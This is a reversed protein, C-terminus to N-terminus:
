GVMGGVCTRDTGHSYAGGGSTTFGSRYNHGLRQWDWGAPAGADLRRISRAVAAPPPPPKGGVPAAPQHPEPVRYLRSVAAEWSGEATLGGAAAAEARAAQRPSTAATRHEGGVDAHGGGGSIGGGMMTDGDTAAQKMQVTFPVHWDIGHQISRSVSLSKSHQTRGERAGTGMSVVPSAKLTADKAAHSDYDGAPADCPLHNDFLCPAPPSPPGSM